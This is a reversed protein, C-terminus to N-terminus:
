QLPQVCCHVRTYATRAFFAGLSFTFIYKSSGPNCPCTSRAFAAFRRWVYPAQTNCKSCSLADEPRLPVTFVHLGADWAKKNHESVMEQRKALKMSARTLGPEPLGGKDHVGGCTERAFRSLNGLAVKRNCRVCYVDTGADFPGVVHKNLDSATRNHLIRNELRVRHKWDRAQALEAKRTLM